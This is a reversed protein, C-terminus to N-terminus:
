TLGWSSARSMFTLAGSTPCITKRRTECRVAFMSLLYMVSRVTVIMSTQTNTFGNQALIYPQSVSFANVGLGSCVLMMMTCGLCVAWARHLRKM